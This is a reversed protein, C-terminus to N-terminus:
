AAKKMQRRRKLPYVEETVPRIIRLPKRSMFHGIANQTKLFTDRWMQSTSALGANQLLYTRMAVAASDALGDSFGSGLVKCFQELRQTDAEMYWARGVASLTVSNYINKTRPMAKIAFEAAERHEEVLRLKEANSSRGLTSIGTAIGRATAIVAHSLAFDLQSIRGADVLSRNAGTDINLGDRRALGRVIIFEQSTGSEVIAYLRHQGDALEGDEYFSIPMVCQTWNGAKMDKAYVEAVGERLHRNNHNTNLWSEAIKPTVLEKSQRISM